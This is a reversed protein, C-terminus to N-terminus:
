SIRKVRTTPSGSARTLLYSGFMGKRIVVVDGAEYRPESKYETQQWVPGNELTLM